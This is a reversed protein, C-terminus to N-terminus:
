ESKKDTSQIRDNLPIISERVISEPDDLACLMRSHLPSGEQICSAMPLLSRAAAVRVRSSTSFLMDVVAAALKPTAESGLRKMESLAEILVREKPSRLAGLLSGETENSASSIHKNIALQIGHSEIHNWLEAPSYSLLIGLIRDHVEAIDNWELLALLTVMLPLLPQVRYGLYDKYIDWNPNDFTSDSFSRIGHLIERRADGGMEPNRLIERLLPVAKGEPVVGKREWARLTKSFVHELYDPSEVFRGILREVYDDIITSGRLGM